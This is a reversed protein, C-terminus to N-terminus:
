TRRLLRELESVELSHLDIGKSELQRLLDKKRQRKGMLATIREKRVAHINNGYLTGEFVKDLKRLTHLDVTKLNIQMKYDPDPQQVKNEPKLVKILPEDRGRCFNPSYYMIAALSVAVLLILNIM